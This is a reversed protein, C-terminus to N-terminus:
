RLERKVDAGFEAHNLEIGLAEAERQLPGSNHHNKTGRWLGRLREALVEKPEDILEVTIRFRRISVEGNFCSPVAPQGSVRRLEYGFDDYLEYVRPYEPAKPKVPKTTKAKAM